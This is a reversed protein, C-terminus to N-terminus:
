NSLTPADKSRRLQEVVAVVVIGGGDDGGGDTAGPGGWTQM